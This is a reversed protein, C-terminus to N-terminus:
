LYYERNLARVIMAAREERELVKPDTQKFNETRHVIICVENFDEDVIELWFKGPEPPECDTEGDYWGRWKYM